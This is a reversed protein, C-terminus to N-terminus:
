AQGIMRLFTRIIDAGGVSLTRFQIEAIKRSLAQDQSVEGGSGQYQDHTKVVVGKFSIAKKLVPFRFSAEYEDGVQLPTPTQVLCGTPIIKLIQVEIGGLSIDIPYPRIKKVVTKGDKASSM